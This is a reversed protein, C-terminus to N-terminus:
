PKLYAVGSERRGTNKTVIGLLEATLDDVVVLSSGLGSYRLLRGAPPSM